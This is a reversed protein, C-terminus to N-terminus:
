ARVSDRDACRIHTPVDRRFPVLDTVGGGRLGERVVCIAVQGRIAGAGKLPIGAILEDCDVYSRM